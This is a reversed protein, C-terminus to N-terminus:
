FQPLYMGLLWLGVEHQGVPLSVAAASVLSSKLSLSLLLFMKKVFLIYRYTM